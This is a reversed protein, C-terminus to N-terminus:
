VRERCSARGIEEMSVYIDGIEVTGGVEESVWQELDPKFHEVGPLALRLLVVGVAVSVLTTSLLIWFTGWLSSWLSSLFKRSYLSWM